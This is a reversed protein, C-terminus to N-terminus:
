STKVLILGPDQRYFDALHRYLAPYAAMLQEPREFFVESLVAFFEAPSTAAYDDIVASKGKNVRHQFDDFAQSFDAAWAEKHMHKHLPPFGNAVGNLMDLKHVFEHIVLNSGDLEGATAVGRWSLIVPGRLWSEGSLVSRRRHVIGGEDTVNTEPVFSDPYVIISVWGQYWEIGLNLIPLCAQLAVILKMEDNLRLGQAGTFSKKYLFLIVIERLQEAESLTLRQLLPLQSFAQQWAADSLDSRTIIRNHWWRRIVSFM